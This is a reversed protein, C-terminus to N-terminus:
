RKWISLVMSCIKALQISFLAAWIIMKLNHLTSFTGDDVRAIPNSSLNLETLNSLYKFLESDISKLQNLSLNLRRLNLLGSFAVSDITEININALDLEELNVLNCFSNKSIHKADRRFYDNRSALRLAKLYTLNGNVCTSNLEKDYTYVHLKHLNKIQSLDDLKINNVNKLDLDIQNVNMNSEFWKLSNIM